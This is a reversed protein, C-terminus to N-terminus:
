ASSCSTGKREITAGTADRYTALPTSQVIAVHYTGAPLGDLNALTVFGCNGPYGDFVAPVDPRAVRTGARFVRDNLGDASELAVFLEVMDPACEAVHAWGSICLEDGHVSIPAVAAVIATRDADGIFDVYCDGGSAPLKRSSIPVSRLKEGGAAGNRALAVEVTALLRDRAHEHLAMVDTLEGLVSGAPEGIEGLADRLRRLLALGSAPGRAARRTALLAARGDGDDPELYASQGWDNWADLFVIKESRSRTAAIASHLVLEFSEAAHRDASTRRVEARRFLRHAPWPAELAGGAPAELFSDLGLEEPWEAPAPLAGCLHLEGLGRRAAAARWVAAITRLEAFRELDRLVILARNDVRVYRSDALAPALGDFIREAAQVPITAGDPAVMACFPFDPRATAVLDRFPADWRPGDPGWLYLWCFADVGHARALAAQAERVEPVRPDAFGLETPLPKPPDCALLRPWMSDAPDGEALHEPAYCRPDYLAVVSVDRRVAAADPHRGNSSRPKRALVLDQSFLLNAEAPTPLLELGAAALESRVVEATAFAIGYLPEGGYVTTLAAFGFGNARLEGAAADRSESSYAGYHPMTGDLWPELHRESLYTFAAAGGPRLMRAWARLTSRWHELPTHTLLSVCVIADLDEPLAEEDPRWGTVVPLAGLEDACFQVAARDIDCAYVAAHPLAARLVRTMRGYHSAFDAVARSGALGPHDHERLRADIEALQDAGSQFYWDAQVADGVSFIVDNPSVTRDVRRLLDAPEFRPPVAGAPVHRRDHSWEVGAARVLAVLEPAAERLSEGRSADLDNTFTMFEHFLDSDFADGPEELVGCYAQVVARNAPKCGTDLYSRLRRAAIRRVSPPLNVARLRAPENLVNYALSLDFQDVFRLLTVIDLANCNQFTPVISVDVSPLGRLWALNEVLKTWVGGHRLYEYLKGYGDISVSVNFGRFRPALDVLQASRQMGNTSLGVYIRPAVGRAVLADLLRWTSDILFPEGGMLSLIANEQAGGAITEVIKDIDNFWAAGDNAVVPAPGTWAVHTRDAAIRSSSLPTCSRCKLNCVNGLELVFWDPRRELHYGTAAGQEALADVALGGGLHRYIPNSVLRRSVNGEAERKWCASCSAPKEGRAMAARVQVLEDANWLDDFADRTINGSRGNVTLAPLVDCCFATSGDPRIV